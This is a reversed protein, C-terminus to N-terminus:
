CLGYYSGVRLSPGVSSLSPTGACRALSPCLRTGHKKAAGHVLLGPSRLRLRVFATFGSPPTSTTCRSRRSTPFRDRSSRAQQPLRESAVIQLPGPLPDAAVPATGAHVATRDGARLHVQPLVSRADALFQLTPRIPRARHAPHRNRLRITAFAFQPYRRNQMPQDLLRQRPHQLRQDNPRQAAIAAVCSAGESRETRRERFVAVAETGPATGVIRHQPRLRMDLGAVLDHLIDIQLAEEVPDIVIHQLVPQGLADGVARHQTQDAAIEIGPHHRVAHGDRPLRARRLAPRQRRRQRVHKQVVHVPLQFPAPM